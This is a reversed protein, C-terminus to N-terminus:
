HIPTSRDNKVESEPTQKNLFETIAQNALRTMPVKLEQKLRYLRRVLDEKISPSYM